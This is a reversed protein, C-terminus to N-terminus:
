EKVTAFIVFIDTYDTAGSHHPHRLRGAVSPQCFMHASPHKPIKAKNVSRKIAKQVHTKHLYYRRYENKDSIFTLTKAPFVM